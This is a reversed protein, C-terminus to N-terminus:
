ANKNELHYQKKRLKVMQSEWVERPITDFCNQGTITYEHLAEPIHVSLFKETIRLHMLYDEVPEMGEEYLGVGQLALKSIIPSNHIICERDLRERSFPEKYDSIYTNNKLNHNIVDSYVEGINDVDELIKKVSKSIKGSLCRDDADLICFIDVLNWLTKIGFNRTAAQKKNTDNKLLIIPVGRCLGYAYYAPADQLKEDMIDLVTQISDDVSCDDVVCLIKHPYDQEVFSLIAKQVFNAHNYLAIIGGVVPPNNM